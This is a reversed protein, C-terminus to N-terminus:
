DNLGFVRRLGQFRKKKGDRGVIVNKGTKPDVITRAESMASNRKSLTPRLSPRRPIVGDSSQPRVDEGIKPPQPLPWSDSASRGWQPTSRRQLKPSRLPSQPSQDAEFSKDEGIPTLPRNVNNDSNRHPPPMPIDTAADKAAQAEIVDAPAASTKKKGLGFFGRKSGSRKGGKFAPLEAPAHKSKRLSGADFATGQGNATPGNKEIDKPLSTAPAPETDSAEDELDTSDGDEEGARRPIGRVPALGPPLEFDDEDDSDAFRSQFRRPRDDEDESSSDAFRSKFRPKANIPVPSKSPKSFGPKKAAMMRPPAAKAPAVKTPLPPIDESMKRMGRFRGAPSLSRISFKSSKIGSHAIPAMPEPTPSTPRMSKRLTPPPSAATAPAMPRASSPRSSSRMTPAAIPPGSRMSGRMTYRGAQAGSTRPRERRFSSVSADSDSDYTVPAISKTTLQGSSTQPRAKPVVAAPIHKKQLAGKPPKTDMPPMSHRSAALGQLARDNGRMSKRMHTGGQQPASSEAPGGRMTKKMHTEPGTHQEAPTSKKLASKRPQASLQPQSVRAPQAIQPTPEVQIRREPKNKTQKAKPKPKPDQLIPAQSKEQPPSHQKPPQMASPQETAKQAESLGSWHERTADWDETTASIKGESVTQYENRLTSKPQSESAKPEAHKSFMLGSGPPVVPSEVVADISAFGGDENESLDEYADSYISSNDDSSSEDEQLQALSLPTTQPPAQTAIPETPQPAPKAIDEQESDEDEDWGGPVFPRAIKFKPEPKEVPSPSAPQIAIIPVETRPPHSEVPATLTKPEAKPVSAERRTENAATAAAHSDHTESYDSDSYYGSGEVTTVEPPLPDNSSRTAHPESKQSGKKTAFDQTLIGALAHDSSPELPEAMSGVSTSMSSSVTETVKEPVEGDEMRRNRDRVSGFSPLTPRPKMVDDFDQEQQTPSWRSSSLGTPSSPTESPGYASTGAIVPDEDFSVRVSKKKKKLGDDSMTDSAESPAIRTSNKVNNTLPNPMPSSNRRSVSPSSKLASKAPSVSRPLPQHIVGNPFEVAVAAFHANRPPSLSHTRDVRGNAANSSTPPPNTPTGIRPYPSDQNLAKKPSLPSEPINELTAPPATDMKRGINSDPASRMDDEAYDESSQRALLAGARTQYGPSAPREEQEEVGSHPPSPPRVAAHRVPSEERHQPQPPPSPPRRVVQRVPSPQRQAVRPREPQATYEQPEEADQHLERFRAMAQQKPIFTRTSPDYVAQPSKPDITQQLERSGSRSAQSYVSPMASGPPKARMSGSSLRSGEVGHALQTKRTSVPGNAANQVSQQVHHVDQASFGAAPKPQTRGGRLAPESNVVPAAFWGSGGKESAVPRLPSSAPSMPRSFNISRPSNDMDNEPVQSLRSGKAQGRGTPNGGGRDLSVGRGGGRGVPSGGRAFPPELSSARRHVVSTTPVAKPFNPVPPADPDADVVPSSRNPSPARFSRETMSGSSSHRRLDTPRQSGSGHSSTSQRRQMRKTVTDGVPTASAPHTRLAAAAAASSLSANSERNGLFAKTAALSASASPPAHSAPSLTARKRHFM